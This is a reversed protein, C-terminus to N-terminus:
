EMSSVYKIIYILTLMSFAGLYNSYYFFKNKRNNLDGQVYLKKFFISLAMLVLFFIFVSIWIVVEFSTSNVGIMKSFNFLDNKSTWISLLAFYLGISASSLEPGWIISSLKNETELEHIYKTAQSKYEDSDISLNDLRKIKKVALNPAIIQESIWNLILVVIVIFLTEAFTIGIDLIFNAPM